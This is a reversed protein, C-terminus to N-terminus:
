ASKRTPSGFANERTHKQSGPRLRRVAKPPLPGAMRQALMSKGAGPPGVMLVNHGTAAAVELARKATEQGKINRLDLYPSTGAIAGLKPPSLAQNGKFHNILAVLNPRAM